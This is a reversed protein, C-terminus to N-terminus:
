TVEFVVKRRSHLRRSALHQTVVSFRVPSCTTSGRFCIEISLRPCVMCWKPFCLIRSKDMYNEFIDSRSRIRLIQRFRRALTSITHGRTVLIYVINRFVVINRSHM